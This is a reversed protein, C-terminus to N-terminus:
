RMTTFYRKRLRRVTKGEDTWLEPNTPSGHEDRHCVTVLSAERIDVGIPTREEPPAESNLPIDHTEILHFYWTGERKLM